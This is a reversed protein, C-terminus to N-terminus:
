ECTVYINYEGEVDAEWAVKSSKGDLAIDLTYVGLPFRVNWRYYQLLYPDGTDIFEKDLQAEVKLPITERPRTLDVVVDGRRSGDLIVSMDMEGRKINFGVMCGTRADIYIDDTPIVRDPGRVTLRSAIFATTGDELRVQYWDGDEGTVTLMMGDNAKQVVDCNTGACSRLNVNGSVIVNFTDPDAAVEVDGAGCADNARVFLTDYTVERGEALLDLTIGGVYDWVTFVIEGGTDRALPLESIEVSSISDDDPMQLITNLTECNFELVGDNSSRWVGDAGDQAITTGVVMFIVLMAIIKKM